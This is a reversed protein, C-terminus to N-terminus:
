IDPQSISLLVMEILRVFTGMEIFFVGVPLKYFWCIVYCPFCDFCLIFCRIIHLIRLMSIHNRCQIM